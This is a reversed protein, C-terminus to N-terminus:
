DDPRPRLWRLTTFPIPDSITTGGDNVAIIRAEYDTSRRLDTIVERHVADDSSTEEGGLLWDSDGEERYEVRAPGAADLSFTVVAENRGPEVDIASIVPPAPAVRSVFRVADFAVKRGGRSDGTQASLRVEAASSLEFTGLTLWTGRARYQSVTRAVLGNATRVTYRAARTTAHLRPIKVQVRHKGAQPLSATWTGGRTTRARTGYMWYHHNAYGGVGDRWGSGRPSFDTALEDVIIAPGAAAPAVAAVQAAAVADGRGSGAPLAPIAATISAVIALAVVLRLPM